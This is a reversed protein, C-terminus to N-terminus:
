VWQVAASLCFIQCNFTWSLLWLCILSPLSFRNKVTFNVPLQIILYYQHACFLFIVFFSSLNLFYPNFIHFAAQLVPICYVKREKQKQYCMRSIYQSLWTDASIVLNGLYKNPEWVRYVDDEQSFDDITKNKHLMTRKSVSFSHLLHSARTQCPTFCEAAQDNCWYRTKAHWLFASKM